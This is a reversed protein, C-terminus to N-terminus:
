TSVSPNIPSTTRLDEAEEWQQWWEKRAGPAVSPKFQEAKRAKRKRKTETKCIDTDHVTRMEITPIGLGDREEEDGEETPFMQIGYEHFDKFAIITKGNPPTPFPPFTLRGEVPPQPTTMLPELFYILNGFISKYLVVRFRPVFESGMQDCENLIM